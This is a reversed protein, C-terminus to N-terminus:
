ALKILPVGFLHYYAFDHFLDVLIISSSYVTFLSFSNLFERELSDNITFYLDETTVRGLYYYLETSVLSTGTLAAEQQQHLSSSGM